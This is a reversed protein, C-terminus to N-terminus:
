RCIKCLWSILPEEGKCMRKYKRVGVIKQCRIHQWRGCLDCALAEADDPVKIKCHICANPDLNEFAKRKKKKNKKKRPEIEDLKSMREKHLKYCLSSCTNNFDTSQQDINEVGNLILKLLDIKNSVLTDNEMIFRRVRRMYPKRANKLKKCKLIFHVMDENGDKCLKCTEDVRYQNFQATNSQLIYSGCLMKARYAACTIRFQIHTEPWVPHFKNLRILEM